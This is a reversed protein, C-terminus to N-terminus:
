LAIILRRQYAQREVEGIDPQKRSKSYLWKYLPVPSDSESAGPALLGLQNAQTVVGELRNLFDPAAEPMLRAAIYRREFEVLAAQQSRFSASGINELLKQGYDKDSPNTGFAFADRIWSRVVSHQGSVDEAAPSANPEHALYQTARSRIAHLGSLAAIRNSTGDLNPNRMVTSFGDFRELIRKALSDRRDKAGDQGQSAEVSAELMRVYLVHIDMYFTAIQQNAYVLPTMPNATSDIQVSISGLTERLEQNSALQFGAVPYSARFEANREKRTGGIATPLDEDAIPSLLYTSLYTTALPAMAFTKRGSRASSNIAWAMINATYFLAGHTRNSQYVVYGFAAILDPDEDGILNMANEIESLYRAREYADELLMNPKLLLDRMIQAKLSMGHYRDNTSDLIRLQAALYNARRFDLAGLSREYAQQLSSALKREDQQAPLFFSGIILVALAALIAGYAGYKQTKSANKIRHYINVYTLATLAVLFGLFIIINRAIRELSVATKTSLTDLSGVQKDLSADLKAIADTLTQDLNRTTAVLVRDLTTLNNEIITNTEALNKALIADFTTLNSDLASGLSVINSDLHGKLRDISRANANEWDRIAGGFMAQSPFGLVQDAAGGGGPLLGGARSVVRGADGGIRSGLDRVVGGLFATAGIPAMVLAILLVWQVIRTRSASPIDLRVSNDGLIRQSRM